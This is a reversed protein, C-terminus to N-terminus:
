IASVEHQACVYKVSEGTGRIVPSHPGGGGAHDEILSREIPSSIVSAIALAAVACFHDTAPRDVFHARLGPQIVFPM